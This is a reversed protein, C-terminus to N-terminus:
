DRSDETSRLALELAVRCIEWTKGVVVKRLSFSVEDGKVDSYKHM